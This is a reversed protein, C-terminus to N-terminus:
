RWSARMTSDCSLAMKGEIFYKLPNEIVQTVRARRVVAANDVKLILYLSKQDDEFYAKQM